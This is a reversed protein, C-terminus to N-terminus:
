KDNCVLLPACGVTDITVADHEEDCVFSARLCDIYPKADCRADDYADDVFMNCDILPTPGVTVDCTYLVEDNYFGRCYDYNGSFPDCLEIALLVVPLKAHTQM